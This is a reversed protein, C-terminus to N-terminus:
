AGQSPFIHESFALAQQSTHRLKCEQWFQPLVMHPESNTDHQTVVLLFFSIPPMCSQHFLFNNHYRVYCPTGKAAM